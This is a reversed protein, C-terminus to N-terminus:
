HTVIRGQLHFIDNLKDIMDEVSKFEAHEHLDCERECTPAICPTLSIMAGCMVTSASDAFACIPHNVNKRSLQIRVLLTCEKCLLASARSPAKASRLELM